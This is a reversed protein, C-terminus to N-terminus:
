RQDGLSPDLLAAIEPKSMADSLRRLALERLRHEIIDLDLRKFDTMCYAHNCQMEGDDGYLAGLGHGHGLWLRQRYRFEVDALRRALRICNQCTEDPQYDRM